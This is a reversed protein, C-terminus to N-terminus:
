SKYLTTKQVLYKTLNKIQIMDNLGAQLEILCVMNHGNQLPPVQLEALKLWKGLIMYKHITMGPNVSLHVQGGFWSMKEEAVALPHPLTNTIGASTALTTGWPPSIFFLCIRCVTTPRACVTGVRPFHYVAAVARPAGEPSCSEPFHAPSHPTSGAQVWERNREEEWCVEVTPNPCHVPISSKSTFIGKGEATSNTSWGAPLGLGRTGPDTSRATPCGVAQSSTM